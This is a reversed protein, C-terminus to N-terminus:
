APASITTTSRAGDRCLWCAARRADVDFLPPAQACREFAYDCRSAFRCGSPWSLPSPVMGRIVNLRADRRMGLRPISHLLAETYPHQPTELVLEARGQEVIAGAYMVAIEDAMEAVVGLDHTILLIAMDLRQQLDRLLDLIQAQITVDLATTPEDAILVNPSCALAMAIMVRQQMGGSLEHPFQHVRQEPAPINVLQFLEVARTMADRRSIRIHRSVAEAVQDGVSYVPNLASTPEQFIMAIDHGRLNRLAPEDLAMLERGALVVSSAPDIRLPPDVLRLMARATLSKGCGSEGVLCLTRARPIAFSVGDVVTVARAPTDIVVGLNQVRLVVDPAAAALTGPSRATRHEGM